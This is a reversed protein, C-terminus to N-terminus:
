LWAAAGHQPEYALICGLSSYVNLFCFLFFSIERGRGLVM